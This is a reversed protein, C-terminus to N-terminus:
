SGVQGGRGHEGVLLPVNGSAQSEEDLSVDKQGLGLESAIGQFMAPRLTNYWWQMLEERLIERVREETLETKKEVM